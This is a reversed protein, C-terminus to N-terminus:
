ARRRLIKKYAYIIFASLLLVISVCYCLRGIIDGNLAYFTKENNAFIQKNIIVETNLNTVDYQNGLPDIFSSIGTQACRVIWKRNEVARLVAYQQHQYPGFSNGFWGDNTIIVLFEAGKKVAESVYESFISEFCILVAFKTDVKNNTFDFIILEEGARWSSIGVGWKLVDKLFPLYQTYPTRESFPVLKVKKHITLSDKRKDPEILIASNFTDYKKETSKMLKADEPIYDTEKYYQIHPIGMLLYIGSSNVFNFFQESKSSYYEELFYFPTATENMVILDPSYVSCRNLADIYKKILENQDGLWKKFPDVNPQIVTTNIIKTSDESTYYDKSLNKYYLYSYINPSIILVLIIFFLIGLKVRGNSKKENLFLITYYILVSILCILFSIGHIGTFEIYQIRNLNYTETYGFDLWPFAMEGYNHFYEFGTWIIPFSFLSINRSITRYILYTISLPIMFFIPHILVAGIGGLKLFIDDSEWGAIWYLSVANFIFIALYGRRLCQFYKESTFILHLLIVLGFYSLFWFNVPPFSLALLVGCVLCWLGTLWFKQKDQLKM